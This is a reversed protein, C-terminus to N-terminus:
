YMPQKSFGFYPKKRGALHTYVGYRVGDMGHDHGKVPENLLNGFKDEAWKYKKREDILPHRGSFVAQKVDESEDVITCNYAKLFQIGAAVSDKGKVSPKANIGEAYLEDISKPEAADWYSPRRVDVRPDAKLLTAIQQNTLGAKYIIVEFWLDRAKQYIQIAATPNITYGFDGGIWIDDYWAPDESPLPGIKWEPFILGKMAAWVGDRYIARLAPDKTQELIKAYEERESKIPNDAITSHHVFSNPRSGSGTHGDPLGDFFMEKIWPGAAEDPNFSMIIQKYSPSEGRLRYDLQEFDKATFETFEELWMGTIGKISKIKLPDDLGDFLIQNSIGFISPFTMIRKTDNWRYDIKEEAMIDKMVQIVSEWLRARVKRMVLFRHGGELRCRTFIKRGVFESKGSGAGGCLLLYRDENEMLPGFSNSLIM